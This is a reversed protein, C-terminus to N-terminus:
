SPRRSPRESWTVSGPASSSHCSVLHCTITPTSRLSTFYPSTLHSSTSHLSTFHLSSFHPSTLYSIILPPSPSTYKLPTNHIHPAPAVLHLSAFSRAYTTHTRVEETWDREVVVGDDDDDIREFMKAAMMIDKEAVKGMMFLLMVVFESKRLEKPHLKLKPVRDFLDNEILGIMTKESLGRLFQKSIRMEQEKARIAIPFRVVDSLGKVTVICGFLAYFITFIKGGDTQPSIDGLGVSTITVASQPPFPLAPSPLAPCPLTFSPRLFSPFRSRAASNLQHINPPRPSVFSSILLRCSVRLYPFALCSLNRHMCVWYVADTFSWGELSSMAAAGVFMSIMVAILNILGSIKMDKIEKEYSYTNMADMSRLDHAVSLRRSAPDNWAAAEADQSNNTGVFPDEGGGLLAFFKDGLADLREDIKAEEQEMVNSAVIGVFTGLVGAGFLIFFTSFAHDPQAVDGYGITMLTTICFYASTLADHGCIMTYYSVGLVIYLIFLITCVVGSTIVSQETGAMEDLVNGGRGSVSGKRSGANRINSRM